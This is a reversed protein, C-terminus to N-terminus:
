PTWGRRKGGVGVGVGVGVGFGFGFGFGVGVGVCEIVRWWSSGGHESRKVWMSVDETGDGEFNRTAGVLEMLSLLRCVLVVARGGSM